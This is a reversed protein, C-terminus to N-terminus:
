DDYQRERGKNLPSGHQKTIWISAQLWPVADHDDCVVSSGKQSTRNFRAMQKPRFGEKGANIPDLAISVSARDDLTRM